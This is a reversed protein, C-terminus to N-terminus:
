AKKDLKERIAQNIFAMIKLNHDLCYHKMENALKADIKTTIVTTKEM